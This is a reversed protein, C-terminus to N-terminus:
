NVLFLNQAIIQLMLHIIIKTKNLELIKEHYMGKRKTSILFEYQNFYLASRFIWIEDCCKTIRFFTEKCIM